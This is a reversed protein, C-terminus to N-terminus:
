NIQFGERVFHFDDLTTNTKPLIGSVIVDNGFFNAIIDGEKSFLKEKQMMAAEKAGIYISQYQKNGIIISQNVSDATISRALKVPVPSTVEYFYKTTGDVSATKLRAVGNIQDLTDRTVVHYNDIDTGTKALIGVVRMEGIGFFNPLIDGAGKILKEEKMMAAEDAGIIMENPGILSKGEAIPLGLVEHPEVELFLKVNGDTYNIKGQSDIFLEKAQQAVKPDVKVEQAQATMSGEVGDMGSSFRAFEFFMLSFALVMFAPAFASAYNKHGPRFLKLLLSNGVVSISSLAMALGALEPKLVLGIGFFLRAAIPIGM